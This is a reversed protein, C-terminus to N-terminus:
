TLGEPVCVSICMDIITQHQGNWINGCVARLSILYIDGRFAPLPCLGTATTNTHQLGAPTPAVLKMIAGVSIHHLSWEFGFYMFIWMYSEFCQWKVNIQVNTTEYFKSNQTIKCIQKMMLKDAIVM